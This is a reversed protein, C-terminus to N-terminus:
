CACKIGDVYSDCQVCFMTCPEDTEIDVIGSSDSDYSIEVTTEVSDNQSDVAEKSVEFKELKMCSTDEDNELNTKNVALHEAKLLKADNMQTTFKETTSPMLKVSSFNQYYTNSNLLVKETKDIIPCSKKANLKEKTFKAYSNSFTCKKEATSSKPEVSTVNQDMNNNNLIVNNLKDMKSSIDDICNEQKDNANTENQILKSKYFKSEKASNIKNVALNYGKLLKADNMQTTCTQSIFMLELSERNKDSTDSSVKEIIRTESSSNRNKIKVCDNTIISTTYNKCKKIMAFVRDLEKENEAEVEFLKLGEQSKCIVIKGDLFFKLKFASLGEIENVFLAYAIQYGVDTTGPKRFKM